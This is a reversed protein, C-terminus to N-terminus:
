LGPRQPSTHSYSGFCALFSMSSPPPSGPPFIVRVELTSVPECRCHISATQLLMLRVSPRFLAQVTM